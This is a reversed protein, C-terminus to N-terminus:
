PVAAALRGSEPRCINFILSIASFSRTLLSLPPSLPFKAGNISAEAFLSFNEKAKGGERERERERENKGNREILDNM